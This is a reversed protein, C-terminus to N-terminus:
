EISGAVISCDYSGCLTGQEERATYTKYNHIKVRKIQM